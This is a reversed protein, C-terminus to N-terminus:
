LNITGKQSKRRPRKLNRQVWCTVGDQLQMKEPWVWLWCLAVSITLLIILVELEKPGLMNRWGTVADERALGLALVPGSFYLLIILVELEKPGLMNRWGTVADERALGLALVPGSFYLPIILVELEKPGLKNRWGIVTDERALGLALVPGSFYLSSYYSKLKNKTM